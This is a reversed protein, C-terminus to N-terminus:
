EPKHIWIPSSWARQGNRQEVRIRYHTEKKLPEDDIFELTKTYGAEPIARHIKAKCALQYYVDGRLATEPEIGTTDWILKECADRYWLLRSQEAFVRVRDHVELQNLNLRLEDEPSAEFEFIIAGQSSRTVNEQRSILGFRATDHNILPVTQGRMIWCPEWGAIRGGSIKLEGKWYQVPLPIEGLRPGWGAEIRIKFRSKQNIAPMKWTGQHCHTAIVQGNRLIEIRDLSDSGRVAVYLQREPQFPLISGMPADNCRFELQIRDGTVGYVRRALFAQWLNERSLSEALCAMLGQGWYGPMNTWNDTSCIAGLHLGADLAAQYTGSGSGPGMHSNQRMGIWEEDTESCGHISFIETFPSIREDCASWNPARQGTYYATHHPIALADMNRLHAYLEPLTEVSFLPQGETKYIVNHDGWRGDGQWEYGPFTIFEGPRHWEHTAKQFEEWERKLASAEKLEELHIGKWKGDSIQNMESLHGGTLEPIQESVRQKLPVEAFVPTYYAGSYFDLYTSAFELIESMPPNQIYHQYTNHHSDGWYINYPPKMNNMMFI